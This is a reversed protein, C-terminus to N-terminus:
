GGGSAALSVVTEASPSEGALIAEIRGAWAELAQRQEQDYSHRDYTATVGTEAHNLVKSVVLRPIGISTMHSAGTRRLDHPVVNSLGLAPLSLRFAHDVAPGTIPKYVRSSQATRSVRPSQFLWDSDKNLKQIEKLLDLALPSLPVKHALRNKSRNAPITWNGSETDMEDWAAGIVEGKRQATVLQFKLALRIAPSMSLRQDKTERIPTGSLGLWLDRLEDSTLVRDRQNELSPKEIGQCPNFEILGEDRSLAWNFVKRVIELSRNAQIPAGRAVIADLIEVIDRRTINRAKRRGLTPIFDKNLIAEDREWSRKKVKAHREIYADVLQTFTEASRQQARKTAPDTGKSAAAMAKRAETRANALSLSPYAGLSLRRKRGEFSYMAVFTKKGGRSVRLGFGPFATDWYDVQGTAPASLSALTRNSFKLRPM